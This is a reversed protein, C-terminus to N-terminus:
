ELIYNDGIDNSEGFRFVVKLSLRKKEHNGIENRNNVLKFLM